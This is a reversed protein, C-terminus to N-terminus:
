RWGPPPLRPRDAAEQEAKFIPGAAEYFKVLDITGADVEAQLKRLQLAEEFRSSSPQTWHHSLGPERGGDVAIPEIEEDAIIAKLGDVLLQRSRLGRSANLGHQLLKADAIDGRARRLGRAADRVARGWV